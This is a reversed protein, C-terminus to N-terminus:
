CLYFAIKFIQRQQASYKYASLEKSNQQQVQSYLQKQEKDHFRVCFKKPVHVPMKCRGKNTKGLCQVFNLEDESEKSNGYNTKNVVQYNEFGANLHHRTQDIIVNQRLLVENCAHLYKLTHYIVYISAV